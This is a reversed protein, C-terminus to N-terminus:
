RPTVRLIEGTWPLAMWVRGSGDASVYRIHGRGVPIAGLHYRRETVDYLTLYAELEGKTMFYGVVLLNPDLPWPGIGIPHGEREPIVRTPEVFGDMTRVPVLGADFEGAHSFFIRRSEPHEYVQATRRPEIADITRMGWRHELIMTSWNVIVLEDELDDALAARGDALFVLHEPNPLSATLAGTIELTDPDLRLVEGMPDITGTFPEPEALVVGLRPPDLHSALGAARIPPQSLETPLLLDAVIQAAADVRLLRPGDAGEGVLVVGEGGPDLAMTSVCIPLAVQMLEALNAADIISLADGQSSPPCSGFATPRHHVFIRDDRAVLGRIAGSEEDWRGMRNGNLGPRVVLRDVDVSIESDTSDRVDILCREDAHGDCDLALATGSPAEREACDGLGAGQRDIAFGGVADIEADIRASELLCDTLDFGLSCAGLEVRPACSRRACSVGVVYGTEDAGCDPLWSATLPFSPTRTADLAARSDDVIGQAYLAPPPLHKQGRAARQVRVSELVSPDAPLAGSLESEAYGFLHAEAGDEVAGDIAFRAPSSFEIPLLGTSALWEGDQVFAIAVRDVADPLDPVILALESSGCGALLSYALVHAARSSM